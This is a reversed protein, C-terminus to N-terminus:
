MHGFVYGKKVMMDAVWFLLHFKLTCFGDHVQVCELPVGPRSNAYMLTSCKLNQVPNGSYNRVRKYIFGIVM